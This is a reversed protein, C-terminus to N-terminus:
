PWHRPTAGPRDREFMFGFLLSDQPALRTGGSSNSRDVVKASPSVYLRQSPPPGFTLRRRNASAKNSGGSATRSLPQPAITITLTKVNTPPTGPTSAAM